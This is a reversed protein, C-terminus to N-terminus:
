KNTEYFNFKLYHWFINGERNAILLFLRSPKNMDSSIIIIIKIYHESLKGM